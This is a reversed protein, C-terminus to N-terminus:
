RGASRHRNAARQQGHGVLGAQEIKGAAERGALDFQQGGAASGFGNAISTQRHAIDTVDGAERFHHVAADFGQMWQHVATQEAAGADVVRRHGFVADARDIQQHQIEIREFRHRRIRVACHVLDDLIDVDPSRRHETGCRFVMRADRDDGVRRLICADELFEIRVVPRQRRLCPERQGHGCEIPDRLVVRADAIIQRRDLVVAAARQKRCLVVAIEDFDHIKAVAFIWMLLAREIAVQPRRGARQRRESLKLTLFEAVVIKGIGISRPFAHTLEIRRRAHDDFVGIGAAYGFADVARVGIFERVGGVGGRREAADDREVSFEVSRGRFCDEIALEDFYQDCRIVVVAREIVCLFFGIDAHQANRVAVAAVADVDLADTGAQQHLGGVDAFDGDIFQLDDGPERGGGCLEVVQQERPAHRLIHLRIRDNVRSVPASDADAGPLHTAHHRRLDSRELGLFGSQGHRARHQGAVREEREAVAHIRSRSRADFRHDM